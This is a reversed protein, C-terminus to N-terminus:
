TTRKNLINNTINAIIGNCQAFLQDELKLKYETLADQYILYKPNGQVSVLTRWTTRKTSVLNKFAVSILAREDVNM